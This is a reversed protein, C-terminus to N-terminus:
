SYGRTRSELETPPAVHRVVRAEVRLRYTLARVASAAHLGVRVAEERRAVLPMRMALRAVKGALVARVVEVSLVVVHGCTRDERPSAATTGAQQGHRESRNRFILYLSYIDPSSDRVISDSFGVQTM